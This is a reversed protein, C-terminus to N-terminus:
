DPPTDLFVPLSEAHASYAQLHPFADTHVIEPLMMQTFRWSVAVTMSAQDLAAPEQPLPAVALEAELVGYAGLLQSRV